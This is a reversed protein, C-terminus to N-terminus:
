LAGKKECELIHNKIEDSLPAKELALALYQRALDINGMKLYVYGMTDLYAPNNNNADYAIRAYKLAKALDGGSKSLIYAISNYANYNGKEHEIITTYVQLADDLRGLAELCYGKMNLAAADSPLLQMVQQLLDLSEDYQKLRILAYALLKKVVLSDIFTQKLKLIKKFYEIASRDLGMRCYSVGINYLIEPNERDLMEASKLDRIAKEYDRIVFKKMASNLFGDIKDQITIDAM